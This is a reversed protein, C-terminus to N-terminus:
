GYFHGGRFDEVGAEWLGVLYTWVIDMASKRRVDIRGPLFRRAVKVVAVM